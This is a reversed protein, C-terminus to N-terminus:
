LFLIFVLAIILAIIFVISLLITITSSKLGKKITKEENTQLTPLNTSNAHNNTLEVLEGFAAKFKYSSSKEERESRQVNVSVTANVLSLANARLSEAVELNHILDTHTQCEYEKQEIPNSLLPNRQRILSAIDPDTILGSENALRVAEEYDKSTYRGPWRASSKVYRDSQQRKEVGVSTQSEGSGNGQGVPRLDVDASVGVETNTNKQSSVNESREIEYDKGGLLCLINEIYAIRQNIIDEDDQPTRIIYKKELPQRMFIVNERIPPMSFGENGVLQAEQPTIYCESNECRGKHQRITYVDDPNLICIVPKVQTEMM